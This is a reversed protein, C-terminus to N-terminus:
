HLAHMGEGAGTNDKSASAVSYLQAIQYEEVSLPLAVRYECILM